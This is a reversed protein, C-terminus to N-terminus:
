YGRGSVNTGSVYQMYEPRIPVRHDRTQAGRNAEGWIKAALTKEVYKWIDAGYDEEQILALVIRRLQLHYNPPIPIEVTDSTIPTPQSYFAHYYRETTAGPDFDFTISAPTTEWRDTDASLPVRYYNINYIGYIDWDSQYANVNRTLVAQTRRVNADYTGDPFSYQYQGATTQLFPPLGENDSPFYLYQKCDKGWIFMVIDNVLGRIDERNWGTKKQVFAELERETM